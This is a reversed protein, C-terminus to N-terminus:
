NIWFFFIRKTNKRPSTKPIKNAILIEDRAKNGIENSASAIAYRGKESRLFDFSASLNWDRVVFSLFNKKKKILMKIKLVM